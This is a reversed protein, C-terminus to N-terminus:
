TNRKFLDPVLRRSHLNLAARKMEARGEVNNM